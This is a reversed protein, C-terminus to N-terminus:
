SPNNSFGRWFETTFEQKYEQKYEPKQKQFHIPTTYVSEEKAACSILSFLALLIISKKIM